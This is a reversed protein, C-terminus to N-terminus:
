DKGHGAREILVLEGQFHEVTQRPNLNFIARGQTTWQRGDYHFVATAARINGVNPNDEMDGGQVAEFRIAVSVLACLQGNSKQRALVIEDDFDCDVWELGRPLGTQGALTMFRAELHERCSRFHDIARCYYSESSGKGGFWYFLGIAFFLSVLITLYIPWLGPM